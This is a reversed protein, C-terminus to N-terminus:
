AKALSDTPQTSYWIIWLLLIQVPLRALLAWEPINPFDAAHQWMYINAPTVCITLLILGYGALTRLSPIWLAAAGLLEFAGSIYVVELPYPVAPPMIRLFSQPITFHAIGGLLFWAFVFLRGALRWCQPHFPM